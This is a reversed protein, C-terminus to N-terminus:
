NQHVRYHYYFGFLPLIWFNLVHLGWLALCVLYATSWATWATIGVCAAISRAAQRWPWIAAAVAATVILMVGIAGAALTVWGGAQPGLLHNAIAVPDYALPNAYRLLFDHFSLEWVSTPLFLEQFSYHREGLSAHLVLLGSLVGSIRGLIGLLPIAFFERPALFHLGYECLNGVVVPLGVAALAKLPAAFLGFLWDLEEM